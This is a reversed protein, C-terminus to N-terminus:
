YGTIYPLRDYVGRIDGLNALLLSTSDWMGEVLSMRYSDNMNTPITFGLSPISVSQGVVDVRILEHPREEVKSILSDISASDSRLTPIGLATCNGSFIEAFSEGVIARIGMRM